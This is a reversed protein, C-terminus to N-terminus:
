IHTSTSLGVTATQRTYYLQPFHSPSLSMILLLFCYPLFGAQISHSMAWEGGRDEPMRRAVEKKYMRAQIQCSENEERNGNHKIHVDLPCPRPMSMIWCVIQDHANAFFALYHFHKWCFYLTLFCGCPSGMKGLLASPSARWLSEENQNAKREQDECCKVWLAPWLHDDIEPKGIRTELNRAWERQLSRGPVVLCETPATLLSMFMVKQKREWYRESRHSGTPALHYPFLMTKYTDQGWPQKAKRAEWAARFVAGKSPDWQSILKNRDVVPLNLSSLWCHETFLM